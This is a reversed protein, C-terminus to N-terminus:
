EATGRWGCSCAARARAASPRSGAGHYAWWERTERFESGSGPDLYVVEPETGDALVAGVWGEHSTGFEETTWAM